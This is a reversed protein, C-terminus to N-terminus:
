AYNTKIKTTRIPIYSIPIPKRVRVRLRNNIRFTEGGRHENRHKALVINVRRSFKKGTM